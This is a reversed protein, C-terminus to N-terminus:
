VEEITELRDAMGREVSEKAGFVRRRGFDKKVVSKTVRRGRALHGSLFVSHRIM